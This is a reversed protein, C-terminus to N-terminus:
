QLSDKFIFHHNQINQIKNGEREKTYETEEIPQTRDKDKVLSSDM